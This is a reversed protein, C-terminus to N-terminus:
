ILNQNVLFIYTVLLGHPSGKYNLPLSDVQLASSKLSVPKIGPRPLGGPPPCSLQSWYEQRSFGMSLPAQLAVIRLIAFVQVHSFHCRACVRVCVCVPSVMPPVPVEWSVSTSGGSWRLHSEWSIFCWKSFCTHLHKCKQWGTATQKVIPDM